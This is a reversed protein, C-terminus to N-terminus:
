CQAAHTLLNKPPVKHFCVQLLSDLYNNNTDILEILTTTVQKLWDCHNQTDNPSWNSTMAMIFIGDCYDSCYKDFGRSNMKFECLTDNNSSLPKLVNNDVQEM